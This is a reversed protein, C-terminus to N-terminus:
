CYNDEPGIYYGWHLSYRHVVGLTSYWTTRYTSIYEIFHCHIMMDDGVIM